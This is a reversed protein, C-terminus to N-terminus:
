GRTAPSCRCRLYRLANFSFKGFKDVRNLWETVSETHRDGLVLVLIGDSCRYCFLDVLLADHASSLDTLSTPAQVWATGAYREGLPHTALLERCTAM